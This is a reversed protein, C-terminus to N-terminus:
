LMCDQEITSTTKSNLLSATLHLQNHTASVKRAKPSKALSGSDKYMAWSEVVPWRLHFAGDIVGM